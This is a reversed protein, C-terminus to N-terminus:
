IGSWHDFPRVREGEGARLRLLHFYGLELLGARPQVLPQPYHERARLLRSM